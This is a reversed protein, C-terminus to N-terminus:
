LPCKLELALLDRLKFLSLHQSIKSDGVGNLSWRGHGKHLQLKTALQM